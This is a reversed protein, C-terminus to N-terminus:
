LIKIEHFYTELMM